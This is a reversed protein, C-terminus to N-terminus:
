AQQHSLTLAASVQLRPQQAQHWLLLLRPLPLLMQWQKSCWHQLLMLLAAARALLLSQLATLLLSQLVALLLSQLV